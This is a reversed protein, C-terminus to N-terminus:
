NRGYPLTGRGCTCMHGRGRPGGEWGTEGRRPCSPAHLQDRRTMRCTEGFKQEVCPLACQKGVEDRGVRGVGQMDLRNEADTDRNRGQFYPWRDWRELNWMGTNIYLIQKERESKSWETHCIKSRYVDRYIIHNWERRHSLIIENYIHVM